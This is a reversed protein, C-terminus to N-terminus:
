ILRVVYRRLCRPLRTGTQFDFTFSTVDVFRKSLPPVRVFSFRVLGRHIKQDVDFRDESREVYLPLKTELFCFRSGERRTGEKRRGAFFDNTVM